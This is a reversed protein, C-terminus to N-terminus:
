DGKNSGAFLCAVAGAFSICALTYFLGAPLISVLQSEGRSITLGTIGLGSACAILLFALLHLPKM